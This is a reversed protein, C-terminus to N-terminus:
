KCEVLLRKKNASQTIRNPFSIKHSPIYLLLFSVQANISFFLLIRNKKELTREAMSLRLALITDYSQKAVGLILVMDVLEDIFALFNTFARLLFPLIYNIYDFLFM